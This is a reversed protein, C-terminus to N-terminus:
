RTNAGSSHGLLNADKQSCTTGLHFRRKLQNKVAKIQRKTLYSFKETLTYPKLLQAWEGSSSLLKEKLGSYTNVLQSVLQNLKPEGRIWAPVHYHCFFPLENPLPTTHVQYNFSEGLVNVTLNLRAAAIPLALQDLWPYKNTITEEADIRRCCDAWIEAFRLGNQVVIVGANFYPLMLEDTGTCRVQWTPLPLNFLDYLQQWRKVERTFLIRSPVASFPAEFIGKWKSISESASNMISSLNLPIMDPCFDRGCLIDSDLFILRDASTDIALCAIKNGIPYNDHIPNTIPVTRVGLSQMFVLTEASVTGWRTAQQPIAAVCEYDCHLYYKLSAALLMSKLELSGQQCVFVFCYKM